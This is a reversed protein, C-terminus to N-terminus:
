KGKNIELMPPRLEHGATFKVVFKIYVDGNVIHEINTLVFSKIIKLADANV